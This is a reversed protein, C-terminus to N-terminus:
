PRATNTALLNGCSSEAAGYPSSLPKAGRQSITAFAILTGTFFAKEVQTVSSGDLFWLVGLAVFALAIAFRTPGYSAFFARTSRLIAWGMFTLTLLWGFTVTSHLAISDRVVSVGYVYYEEGGWISQIYFEGDDVIGNPLFYFELNSIIYWYPEFRSEESSAARNDGDLFNFFDMWKGISHIYRSETSSLYLFVFDALVLWSFIIMAVLGAWVALRKRDYLLTVVGRRNGVGFPFNSILVFLTAIAAIVVYQRFFGTVAILGLLSVGLLSWILYSRKIGIYLIIVAAAIPVGAKGGTAAAQQYLISLITAFLCVWLLAKEYGIGDSGQFYVALHFGILAVLLPRASTYIGILDQDPHLGGLCAAVLICALGIVIVLNGFAAGIYTRARQNTAYAIGIWPLLAAEPYFNGGFRLFSGSGAYSFAIAPLALLAYWLAVNRPKSATNTGEELIAYAM